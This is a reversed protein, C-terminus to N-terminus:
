FLMLCRDMGFIYKGVWIGRRITKNTKWTERLKSALKIPRDQLRLRFFSKFESEKKPASSFLRITLKSAM